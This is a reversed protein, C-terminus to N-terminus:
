SGGEETQRYIPFTISVTTGKNLISDITLKAEDEYFLKIRRYINSLGIGLKEDNVTNGPTMFQQLSKSLNRLQQEEMGCGDDQITIKCKKVTTSEIRVLVTGPDIKKELGHFVANEVIPQLLMKLTQVALLSEDTQIVIQIKGGFRFEIIKAYEKLHIIEDRITVLHTGKVSYRFMNSLSATIDAIEGVKHYLAIARISELTNYLFHPNIQNRYASIEMQKKIIETEYMQKQVIQVNRSLQDINDLMQNLNNALVGIENYYVVNFRRPGGSKAYSKIFDLLAKVPKLIRSYFILLFLCFISFIILYTAVNLREIIDLDQLLEKKPIVSIIKWGNYSLTINQVIYRPDESWKKLKDMEETNIAGDTGAIINNNQDVLLLESHNSIKSKSLISNLNAVDMIFVCMGRYDRLVYNNQLNYVPVAITYYTANLQNPHLVTYEISSVRKKTSPEVARGISTIMTGESDYLQIGKMNKKLSLTSSFESVIEKDMLIRSLVNTSSLYSQITPSYLLSYSIGDMDSFFSVMTEEIQLMIKKSSDAVKKEIINRAILNSVM